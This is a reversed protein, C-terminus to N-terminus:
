TFYCRSLISPRKLHLTRSILVLKPFLNTLYWGSSHLDWTWITRLWADSPDLLRRRKTYWICQLHLGITIREFGFTPLLYNTSHVLPFEPHLTRLDRRCQSIYEDRCASYTRTGFQVPGPTQLLLHVRNANDYRVLDHNPSFDSRNIADNYITFSFFFSIESLGIVSDGIGVSFEVVLLRCLFVM